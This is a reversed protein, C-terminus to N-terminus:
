GTARLMLGTDGNTLTLVGAEITYPVTGQLVGLVHAEVQNSAPDCAMRTTAVPGFTVDAATVAAPGTGRNCGADVQVSGDAFVLTPPRVGAPLSSVADGTVLSDATWVTEELPRDPDAVERDTLTVVAGEATLTLDPGTLTVTPRSTLVAALWRDQDMLTSPECAMETTAMDPVVLVDGELTWTSSLNNCGASAAVLDGDFTLTIRTGPVLTFGEVSTSLFTHGLLGAALDVTTTTTAETTPATTAADTPAPATTVDSAASADPADTAAPEDPEDDGCATALV